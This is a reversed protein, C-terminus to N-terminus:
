KGPFLTYNGLNLQLSDITTGLRPFGCLVRFLKKATNKNLVSIGGRGVSGKVM